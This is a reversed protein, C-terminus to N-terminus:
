AKFRDAGGNVNEHLTITGSGSALTQPASGDGPHYVISLTAAGSGPGFTFVLTGNTMPDTKRAVPLTGGNVTITATEGSNIEGDGNQHLVVETGNASCYLQTEGEDLTSRGYGKGAAVGLFFVNSSGLRLQLMRVKSPPRGRVGWPEIRRGPRQGNSADDDALAAADADGTASSHASLTWGIMQSLKQEVFQQLERRAEALAQAWGSM